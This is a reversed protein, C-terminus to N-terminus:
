RARYGVQKRCDRCVKLVFTSTRVEEPRHEHRSCYILRRWLRGIWTPPAESAAVALAADVPVQWVYGAPPLKRPAEGATFPADTALLDVRYDIWPTLAEGSAVRRSLEEKYADDPGIADASAPLDRDGRFRPNCVIWARPLARRLEACVASRITSAVDVTVSPGLGSSRSDRIGTGDLRRKLSRALVLHTPLSAMSDEDGDSVEIKDSM